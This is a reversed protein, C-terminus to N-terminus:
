EDIMGKITLNFFLSFFVFALIIFDLIIALFLNLWEFLKPNELARISEYVMHREGKDLDGHNFLIPAELSSNELFYSAKDKYLNVIKALKNLGLSSNVDLFLEHILNEKEALKLRQSKLSILRDTYLTVKTEAEMYVKGKGAGGTGYKTNEIKKIHKNNSIQLELADKKKQFDKEIDLTLLTLYKQLKKEEKKLEISNTYKLSNETATKTFTSYFYIYNFGVSVIMPVIYLTLFAKKNERTKTSVILAIATMFGQIGFTMLLAMEYNQIIKDIGWLTTLGSAINMAIISFQLLFIKFSGSDKNISEKSFNEEVDFKEDSTSIHHQYEDLLGM